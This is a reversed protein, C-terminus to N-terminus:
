FAIKSWQYLGGDLPMLRILFIVAAAPPLYFTVIALIWFINQEHGLRCAWGVWLTGVVLVVRTLVLDFLGLEKKFVATRAEVDREVEAVSSAGARDTSDTNM